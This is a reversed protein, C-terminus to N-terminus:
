DRTLRDLLLINGQVLLSGFVGLFWQFHERSSAVDVYIMLTCDLCTSVTTNIVLTSFYTYLFAKFYLSKTM